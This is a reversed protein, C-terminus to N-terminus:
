ATERTFFLNQIRVYQQFPRFGLPQSMAFPHGETEGVGMEGVVSEGVVMKGVGM